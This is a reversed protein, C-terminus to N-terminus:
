EFNFAKQDKEQGEIEDAIKRLKEAHHDLEMVHRAQTLDYARQRIRNPHSEPTQEMAM